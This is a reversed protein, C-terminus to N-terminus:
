SKAESNLPKKLGRVGIRRYNFFWWYIKEKKVELDEALIKIEELTPKDCIHYFYHKLFNKIERSLRPQPSRGVRKKHATRMHNNFFMEWDYRSNCLECVFAM